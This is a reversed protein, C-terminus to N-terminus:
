EFPSALVNNFDNSKESPESSEEVTEVVPEAESQPEQVSIIYQKHQEDYTVMETPVYKTVKIPKGTKQDIAGTPEIIKKVLDAVPFGIIEVIGAQLANVQAMYGKCEQELAEIKEKLPTIKRQIPDIAKAVAKVSQFQQYSIRKEM